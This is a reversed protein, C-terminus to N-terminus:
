PLYWSRHVMGAPTPSNVAKVAEVEKRNRLAQPTKSTPLMDCHLLVSAETATRYQSAPAGPSDTGSLGLTQSEQLNFSKQIKSFRTLIPSILCDEELTWCCRLHAPDARVAGTACRCGLWLRSCTQCLTKETIWSVASPVSVDRYKINSTYTPLLAPITPIVLSCKPRASASLTGTKTTTVLISM